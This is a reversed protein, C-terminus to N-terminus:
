NIVFVIIFFLKLLNVGNQRLLLILLNWMLVFSPKNTNGGSLLSSVSNGRSRVVTSLPGLRIQEECFEIVTKKHTTGRVLPGPFIQFLRKASDNVGINVIKVISTSENSNFYRNPKLCVMLNNSISVLSHDNVFKCPTLRQSASLQGVKSSDLNDIRSESFESQTYYSRTPQVYIGSQQQNLRSLYSQEL